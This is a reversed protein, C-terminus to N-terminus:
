YKIETVTYEVVGKPALVEVIDDVKKGLLAKAIPSSLSIQHKTIDAELDGVIRFTKQEGTEEEVVKVYAGFRVTDAIQTSFDVITARSLKDELEAIRAEVIGQKERAAAYEANESLDGHARADAIDQIVQPREESKLRQLEIQLQEYGEKTLPISQAAM